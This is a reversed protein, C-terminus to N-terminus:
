GLDRESPGFSEKPSDRRSLSGKPVLGWPTGEAHAVPRLKDRLQEAPSRESTYRGDRLEDQTLFLIRICEPDAIFVDRNGSGYKRRCPGKKLM